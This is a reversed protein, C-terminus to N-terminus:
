NKIIICIARSNINYENCFTFHCILYHNLANNMSLNHLAYHGIIILLIFSTVNINICFICILGFCLHNCMTQNQQRLIGVCSVQMTHKKSAFQSIM